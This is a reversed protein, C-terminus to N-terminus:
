KREGELLEFELETIGSCWFVTEDFRPSTTYTVRLTGDPEPDYAFEYIWDGTTDLAVYGEVNEFRLRMRFRQNRTGDRTLDLGTLEWDMYAENPQEIVRQKGGAITVSHVTADHLSLPGECFVNEYGPAYVPGRPTSKPEM